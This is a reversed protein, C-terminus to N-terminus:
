PKQGEPAILALEVKLMDRVVGRIQENEEIALIQRWYARMNANYALITQQDQLLRAIHEQAAELEAEYHGYKIYNAQKGDLRLMFVVNALLLLYLVANKRVSQILKDSM